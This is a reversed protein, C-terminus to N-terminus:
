RRPETKTSTVLIGGQEFKFKGGRALLEAAAENPLNFRARYFNNTRENIIKWDEPRIHQTIRRMYDRLVIIISHGYPDITKSECVIGLRDMLDLIDYASTGSIKYASIDPDGNM